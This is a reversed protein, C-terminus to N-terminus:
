TREVPLGNGSWASMGGDVNVYRRSADKALAGQAFRSRVGGQCILLVEGVDQPLRLADIAAVGENRIRGLPVHRATPAHGDKFEGAERVDVLVAGRNMRLVAEQPGIREGARGFLSKLFGIM